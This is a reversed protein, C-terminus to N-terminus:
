QNIFLQIRRSKQESIRFDPEEQIQDLLKRVELAMLDTQNSIERSSDHKKRNEYQLNLIEVDQEVVKVLLRKVLFSFFKGLGYSRINYLMTIMSKKENVPTYIVNAFVHGIAGMRYEVQHISPAIFREGHYAEADPDPRGFILRSLFSNSEKEGHYIAEVGDFYEEVYSRIELDITRADKESYFLGKHVFGTHVTDASNEVGDLFHGNYERVFGGSFYGPDGLHPFSYPPKPPNEMDERDSIYVWVFGQQEKVFFRKAAAAESFQQKKSGPIHVCKGTVSFAQGHYPCIIRDGDVKGKSLPASRHPCRDVLVSLQDDKTRWIVLPISCIERAHVAGSTFDISKGALYWQEIPFGKPNELENLEM